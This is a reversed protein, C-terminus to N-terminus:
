DATQQTRERRAGEQKRQQIAQFTVLCPPLTAGVLAIYPGYQEFMAGMTWGHKAMVAGGGQAIGQLTKDSWVHAFDPWWAFAPSAMLRAMELAGLLEAANDTATAQAAAPDAAAPAAAGDLEVAQADLAAFDLAAPETSSPATDPTDNM